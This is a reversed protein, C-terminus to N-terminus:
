QKVLQQQKVAKRFQPPTRPATKAVKDNLRQFPMYSDPIARVDRSELGVNCQKPQHHERRLLVAVLGKLDAYAKQPEPDSCQRYRTCM